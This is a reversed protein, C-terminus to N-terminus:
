IPFSAERNFRDWMARYDTNQLFYNRKELREIWASTVGEARRWCDEVFEAQEAKNAKKLGPADAFFQKELADFDARIEPKLAAYDAMARRHLHEHRWWLAGETYTGLPAPGIDPTEMGFFLPKFISLDTCSTGTMWVVIGDASSDTVMAGTAQWWRDEEPAAHMCIKDPAGPYCVNYNEEDDGVHRLIAAMDAVTIAGKRAVLGAYAAGERAVSGGARELKEDAFRARFNPKAGNELALSSADWDDSIQYRNSIAMVDEVQRAAWHSGACNVVYAESADAVLLGSDFSYNGMMQCNGGQGFTEVHHGIVEVGEKATTAREVTLRLLDLCCAGDTENVQNSFAAENGVAVGYENAGLEAGWAWFSKGLIIEHTKRAQPISRHGIRVLAGEGYERRPMRVVHEAENVETDASKALLVSGDATSNGLAVFSDCM